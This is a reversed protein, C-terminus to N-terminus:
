RTALRMVYINGVYRAVKSQGVGIWGSSQLIKRDDINKGTLKPEQSSALSALFLPDEDVIEDRDFTIGLTEPTVHVAIRFFTVKILPPDRSFRPTAPISQLLLHNAVGLLRPAPPAPTASETDSHGRKQPVSSRGPRRSSRSPAVSM